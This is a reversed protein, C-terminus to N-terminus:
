LLWLGLVEEMGCCFLSSELRIHPQILKEFGHIPGTIKTAEKLCAHTVLFLLALSYNFRMRRLESVDITEVLTFADPNQLLAISGLKM